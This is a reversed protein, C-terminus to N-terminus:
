HQAQGLVVLVVPQEAQAMQEWPLRAAVVAARMPDLVAAVTLVKVPYAKGASVAQAM